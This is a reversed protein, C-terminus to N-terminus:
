YPVLCDITTGSDVCADARGDGDLDGLWLAAPPTALTALTLRPGFGRGQSRVCEIANGDLSCLDTRGDGDIDGSAAASGISDVVGDQSYSWPAGDTSVSAEAAVGCALGPPSAACWDPRGDGDFDAPWVPTGAMPWTSLTHSENSPTAHADGFSDCVSRDVAAFSVGAAIPTSWRTVAFGNAALACVIGTRDSGCADIRGDSDLDGLMLTSPDIALAFRATAPTAFGGAGNGSACALMGAEVACLDGLGDGDLDGIRVDSGVFQRALATRSTSVV